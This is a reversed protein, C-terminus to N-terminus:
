GDTTDVANPDCRDVRQRRSAEQKGERREQFVADVGIAVQLQREGARVGSREGCDDVAVGIGAGDRRAGNRGVEVQRAVICATISAGEAAVLEIIGQGGRRDHCPHDRLPPHQGGGGDSYTCM